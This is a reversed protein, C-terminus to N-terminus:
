NGESPKGASLPLRVLFRTEGPHSSVSIDGRHRNVIIRHVIDLGLGTGKGVDKTTFFPEFIRAQVEKPIGAGNDAIEVLVSGNERRTRIRIEGNENLADIANDLLNTWVQNLESGYAEIPPVTPDYDRLITIDGLKHSLISLTNDIDEHINVTQLPARDMYAYAKVRAILDSIRATSQDITNVLDHARLTCELWLLVSHLAESPLQECLSDLHDTAIGSTVFTPALKWADSIGCGELWKILEEERDNQVVPDLWDRQPSHEIVKRQFDGVFALQDPTLDLQYLELTLTQLSTLSAQLQGAARSAASAPNNLEHALGAALSGLALTREHQQFLGESAQIREAMGRLITRAIPTSNILLKQFSEPSFRLLRSKQVARVSSAIAKGTLLSIEGLFTGPEVKNVQRDEGGIQQTVDLEGELVIYFGEPPMGESLLLEGPELWRETAEAELQDLDRPPLSAFLPVDHLTKFTM